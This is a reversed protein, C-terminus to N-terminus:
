DDLKERVIQMTQPDIKLDYKQRAGPQKRADGVEWYGDDLEVEGWTAYGASTLAQELAARQAADPHQGAMALSALSMLGSISLATVTKKMM